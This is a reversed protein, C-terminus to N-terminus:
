SFSPAHGVVAHVKGRLKPLHADRRTLAPSTTPMLAASLKEALVPHPSVSLASWIHGETLSVDNIILIGALDVRRASGPCISCAARTPATSNEPGLRDPFIM